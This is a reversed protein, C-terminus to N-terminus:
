VMYDQRPVMYRVTFNQAPQRWAFHTRTYTLLIDRNDEFLLAVPDLVIECFVDEM